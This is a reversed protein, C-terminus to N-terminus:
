FYDSEFVGTERKAAAGLGVLNYSQQSVEIWYQHNLIEYAQAQVDEPLKELRQYVCELQQFINGFAAKRSDVYYEKYENSSFDKFFQHMHYIADLNEYHEPYAEALVKLAEDAKNFQAIAEEKSQQKKQEEEAAKLAQKRSMKHIKQVFREAGDMIKGEPGYPYNQASALVPLALVLTLLLATKKM